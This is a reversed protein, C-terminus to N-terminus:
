HFFVKTPLSFARQTTYNPSPTACRLLAPEDSRKTHSFQGHGRHLEHSGGKLMIVADRLVGDAIAAGTFNQNPVVDTYNLPLVGGKWPPYAPGIGTVPEM